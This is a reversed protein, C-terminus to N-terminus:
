NMWDFNLVKENVSYAANTMLVFDGSKAILHFAVTPLLRTLHKIKDQKGIIYLPTALAIGNFAHLDLFWGVAKPTQSGFYLDASQSDIIAIRKQLYFPITSIKEYDQFLYVPWEPHENQIVSALKIGSRKAEYEQKDSVYFNVLPILLSAILVMVRSPNKLYKFAAISFIAYLLLCGLLTQAPGLIFDDLQLASPLLLYLWRHYGAYCLLGMFGILISLLGLFFWILHRSQKSNLWNHLNLALLMVLPPLAMIMYYDGKAKSLSFFVLPVLFWVTLFRKLEPNITLNRRFLLPLFFTWPILYLLIKPLYFYLPGTHYDRPLRLDLFRLVHENIFYQYAFEPQQLTAAIHWPVAIGLFLLIGLPDFFQKTRQLSTKSVLMFILAIAGIMVIAMLGKTLVALAVFVYAWRLSHRQELHYWYYFNVLSLTFWLAFLMDFLLVRALLVFGVSTALILGTLYGTRSEGLRRGFQHMVVCILAGAMAPVLRASWASIGMFQYVLATLWYLMPPKELYPVYNLHPIIFDHTVLMERSIEAYLGENINDLAFSGLGLFFCIGCFFVLILSEQSEKLTDIFDKAPNIVKTLM